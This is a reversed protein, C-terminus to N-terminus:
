TEFTFRMRRSPAPLVEAMDDAEDLMTVTERAEPQGAPASEAFAITEEAAPPEFTGSCPSSAVEIIEEAEETEEEAGALLEAQEEIKRFQELMGKGVTYVTQMNPVCMAADTFDDGYDVLGDVNALVPNLGWLRRLARRKLREPLAQELFARVEAASLLEEPPKVGAEALLEADPREALAQEEAARKAEAARASEAQEEAAVAARRKLWASM